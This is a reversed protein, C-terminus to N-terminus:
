KAISGVLVLLAIIAIKVFNTGVSITGIKLGVSHEQLCRIQRFLRLEETESIGKVKSLVTGLVDTLHNGEDSVAAVSNALVATMLIQSLVATINTWPQHLGDEHYYLEGLVLACAVYDHVFLIRLLLGLSKQRKLTFVSWVGCVYQVYEKEHAQWASLTARYGDLGSDHITRHWNCVTCVALLCYTTIVCRVVALQVDVIVGAHLGWYHFEEVRTSNKDFTQAWLQLRQTSVGAVNTFLGLGSKHLLFFFSAIISLVAGCDPNTREEFTDCLKRSTKAKSQLYHSYVTKLHHPMDWMSGSVYVSFFVFSISKLLIVAAKMFNKQRRCLEMQTSADVITAALLLWTIMLFWAM